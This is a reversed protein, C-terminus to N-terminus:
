QETTGYEESIGRYLLRYFLTGVDILMFLSLELLFPYVSHLVFEAVIYFVVGAMADAVIIHIYSMAKTRNWPQKYVMLSTRSLLILFLALVTHILKQEFTTHSSALTFFTATRPLIEFVLLCALLVVVSDILIKVGSNKRFFRYRLHKM